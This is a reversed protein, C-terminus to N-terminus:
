FRLLGIAVRSLGNLKGGSGVKKKKWYTYATILNGGCGGGLQSITREANSDHSVAAHGWFNFKMSCLLSYRQKHSHNKASSHHTCKGPRTSKWCKTRNLFLLLIFQTVAADHAPGCLQEKNAVASRPVTLEECWPLYRLMFPGIVWPRQFAEPFHGCLVPTVASGKVPM